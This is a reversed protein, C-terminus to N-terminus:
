QTKGSAAASTHSNNVECKEALALVDCVASKNDSKLGLVIIEPERTRAMVLWGRRGWASARRFTARLEKAQAIQETTFVRNGTEEDVPGLPNVCKMALEEATDGEETLLTADANHRFLLDTADLGGHCSAAHLASYGRRDQTIVNAGGLLLQKLRGIGQRTSCSMAVYLASPQPCEFEGLPPSLPHREQGLGAGADLLLQVMDDNDTDIAICLLSFPQLTKTTSATSTPGM